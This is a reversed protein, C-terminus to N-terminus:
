NKIKTFDLKLDYLDIYTRCFRFFRAKERLYLNKPLNPFGIDKIFLEGFKRAYINICFHILKVCMKFFYAKLDIYLINEYEHRCLLVFTWLVFLFRLHSALFPLSFFSALPDWMHEKRRDPLASLEVYLTDVFRVHLVTWFM